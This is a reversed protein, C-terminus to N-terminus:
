KGGGGTMLNDKLLINCFINYIDLINNFFFFSFIENVHSYM